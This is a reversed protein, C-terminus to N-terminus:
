NGTSGEPRLWMDVGMYLEEWVKTAVGLGLSFKSIGYTDILDSADIHFKGLVRVGGAEHWFRIFADSPQSVGHVTFIGHATGSLTDGKKTVGVLSDLVFQIEPYRTTELIASRAYQDRRNEGGVLKDAKVVVKGRVGRWAVTDAVTVEGTVAESCVSRVRRRPYLPIITTDSVAAYGHKPPTFVQSINWGGSRGEGPRWSPEEPCTTAWLHNLHPNVQWWALSSKTDATWRGQAQAHGSTLAFLLAVSLSRMIM